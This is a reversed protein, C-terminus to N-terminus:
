DNPFSARLENENWLWYKCMPGCGDTQRLLYPTRAATRGTQAVIRSFLCWTTSFLRSTPLFTDSYFWLHAAILRDSYVGSGTGVCRWLVLEWDCYFQLLLGVLCARNRGDVVDARSFFVKGDNGWAFVKRFFTKVMASMHLMQAIFCWALHGSLCLFGCAFSELLPVVRQHAKCSSVLSSWARVRCFTDKHFLQLPSGESLM